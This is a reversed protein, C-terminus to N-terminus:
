VTRITIYCSVYKYRITDRARRSKTMMDALVREETRVSICLREMLRYWAITYSLLGKNSIV